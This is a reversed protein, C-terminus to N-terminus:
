GFFAGNKKSYKDLENYLEEYKVELYTTKDDYLKEVIEGKQNLNWDDGNYIM